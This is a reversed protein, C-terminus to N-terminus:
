WKFVARWFWFKFFRRKKAHSGDCFPRRSSRGCRCLVEKPGASLNLGRSDKWQFKGEVKLPGRRVPKIHLKGRFTKAAEGKKGFLRGADKFGSSDHHGDCFPQHRSRGCRCLAARTDTLLQTENEDAIVVEGRIYYPGNRVLTIENSSAPEPKGTRTYHLAGTPCTEIVRAVDEPDALDPWVWPRKIINFVRPLGRLCAGVHTCRRIDFHVDIERGTYTRVTNKLHRKKM